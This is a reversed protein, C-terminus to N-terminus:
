YEKVEERVEREQGVIIIVPVENDGKGRSCVRISILSILTVLTVLLVVKVMM